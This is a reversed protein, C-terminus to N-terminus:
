AVGRDLLEIMKRERDSLTWREVAAREAAAREAAARKNLLFGLGFITKGVRKQSDLADIGCCDQRRLTYPTHHIAFWGVKSVTLVEDPYEYKPLSKKVSKLNENNAAAIRDMLDPDSRLRVDPELDTVFATAIEAGNEYRVNCPAVIISADNRAALGGATLYPCFLFFHLGRAKFNKVIKSIISFPPNDVVCCGGPYEFREYDGGPWFPRVMQDRRFGYREAVYNQVVAMINAPTYCDDTTKKPKFKEVFGDYDEFLAKNQSSGAM